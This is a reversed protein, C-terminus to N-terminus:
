SSVLAALSEAAAEGGGHCVDFVCDALIEALLGSHQVHKTCLKYAEQEASESCMSLLSQGKTQVEKM